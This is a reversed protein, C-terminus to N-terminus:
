ARYVNSRWLCQVRRQSQKGDTKEGRREEARKSRWDSWNWTDSEPQRNCIFPTRPLYTIKERTLQQGTVLLPYQSQFLLSPLTNSLPITSLTPATCDHRTPRMKSSLCNLRLLHPIRSLKSLISWLEPRREGPWQRRSNYHQFPCSLAPLSKKKLM